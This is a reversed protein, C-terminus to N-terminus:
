VKELIHVMDILTKPLKLINSAVMIYSSYIKFTKNGDPKDNESNLLM